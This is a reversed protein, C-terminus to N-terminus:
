CGRCINLEKDLKTDEPNIANEERLMSPPVNSANPQVHGIPATPRPTPALSPPDALASCCATGMLISIALPVIAGVRGHNALLPM